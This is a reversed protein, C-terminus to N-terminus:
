IDTFWVYGFYNKSTRSIAGNFNLIIKFNIDFPLYNLYTKIFFVFFFFIFFAFSRIISSKSLMILWQQLANLKRDM